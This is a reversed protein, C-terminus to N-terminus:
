WQKLFRQFSLLKRDFDVHGIRNEGMASFSREMHHRGGKVPHLVHLQKRLSKKIYM